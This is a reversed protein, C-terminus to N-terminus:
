KKIKKKKVTKKKLREYKVIINNSNPNLKLIKLPIYKGFYTFPPKTKLKKPARRKPLFATLGAIGVCFGAKGIRNFIFGKIKREKKLKEELYLWTYYLIYPKKSQKIIYNNDFTRNDTKLFTYFEKGKLNKYNNQVLLKKKPYKIITKLGLDLYIFKKKVLLIKVALIRNRLETLYPTEQQKLLSPLSKYKYINMETM